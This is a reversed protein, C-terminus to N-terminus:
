PFSIVTWNNKYVQVQKVLVNDCMGPLPQWSTMGNNKMQIKGMDVHTLVYFNFNDASDIHVLVWYDPHVACQLNGYKQFFGTVFKTSRTTKVEITKCQRFGNAYDFLVVDAAKANGFTLSVNFGKKSLEACVAYEGALGLTQKKIQSTAM